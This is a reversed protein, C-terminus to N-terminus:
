ELSVCDFNLIMFITLPCLHFRHTSITVPPYLFLTNIHTFSYFIPFNMPLLARYSPFSPVIFFICWWGFFFFIFVSRVFRFLFDGTWFTAYKQRLHFSFCLFSIFYLFLKLVIFVSFFIYVYMLVIPGCVVTLKMVFM